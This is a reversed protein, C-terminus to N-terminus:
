RYPNVKSPPPGGGPDQQNGPLEDLPKFIEPNTRMLERTVDEISMASRSGKAAEKQVATAVQAARKLAQETFEPNVFPNGLVEAWKNAYGIGRARHVGTLFAAVSHLDTNLAGMEPSATGQVLPVGSEPMRASTVRGAFTGFQNPHEKVLQPLEKSLRTASMMVGQATDMATREAAPIKPNFGEPFPTFGGGGPRPAAAPAAAAPPRTSGGGAGPLNSPPMAPLAPAASGGGSYSNRQHTPVTMTGSEGVITRVADKTLQIREQPNTVKNRFLDAGAEQTAAAAQAETPNTIGKKALIIKAMKTLDDAAGGARQAAATEVFDVAKNTEPDIFVTGQKGKVNLEPYQDSTANAVRLLSKRQPNAQKGYVVQEAEQKPMGRKVLTDVAAMQRNLKDTYETDGQKRKTEFERGAQAENAQQFEPGLRKFLEQSRQRLPPMQPLAGSAQPAPAAGPVQLTTTQTGDTNPPAGPPQNGPLSGYAKLAAQQQAQQKQQQQRQKFMGALKGGIAGIDGLQGQKMAHKAGPLEETRENMLNTINGVDDWLNLKAANDLALQYTRMDNDYEKLQKQQEQQHAQRVKGVYGGVLPGLLAAM